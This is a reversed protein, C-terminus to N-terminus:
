YWNHIMWFRKANQWSGYRAKVYTDATREQNAASYDGQLKDPTLQYRGYAGSSPNRATYSGGSERQAIWEKAENENSLSINKTGNNIYISTSENVNTTQSSDNNSRSSEYKQQISSPISKGSHLRVKLEDNVHILNGGNELKNDNVIQQVSSDYKQAIDWATDRYKVRVLEVKKDGNKENRNINPKKFNKDQDSKQTAAIATNHSQIAGGMLMTSGGLLLLAREKKRSKIEM